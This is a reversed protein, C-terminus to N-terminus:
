VINNDPSFHLFMKFEAKFIVGTLNPIYHTRLVFGVYNQFVRSVPHCSLWFDALDVYLFINTWLEAPLHPCDSLTPTASHPAAVTFTPILVELAQSPKAQHTSTCSPQRDSRMTSLNSIHYRLRANPFTYPPTLAAILSSPFKRFFDSARSKITSCAFAEMTITPITARTSEVVAQGVV